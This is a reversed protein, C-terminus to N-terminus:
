SDLAIVTNGTPNGMDDVEITVTYGSGAAGELATEIRSAGTEAGIILDGGPEGTDKVDAASFGELVLADGIGFDAIAAISESAGPLGADASGLDM